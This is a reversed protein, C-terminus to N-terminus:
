ELLLAHALTQLLGTCRCVHLKCQWQSRTTRQALWRVQWEVATRTFRAKHADTYFVQVGVCMCNASGSRVAQQASRVMSGVMRRGSPHVTHKGQGALLREGVEATGM